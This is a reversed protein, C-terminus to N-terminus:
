KEILAGSECDVRRFPYIIRREETGLKGEVHVYMWGGSGRRYVIRQPFALAPNTFTFIADPGDDTREAFRFAAEQKGAAANVYYVGDARPEIRVYEFDQTRGGTVTHGAGVLLDGRLPLWHERFERQNVSGRWCGALWAFDALPGTPAPAADAPPTAAAAAPAATAPSAAPASAAPSAVSAAAATSPTGADSSPSPTACAALALAALSALSAICSRTSRMTTM